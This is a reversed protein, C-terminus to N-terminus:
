FRCMKGDGITWTMSARFFQSTEEDRPLQLHSWQRAPDTSQLWLWRACHSVWATFIAFPWTELILLDLSRRHASLAAAMRLMKVAMGCSTVSWRQSRRSSPPAKHGRRTPYAGAHSHPRSSCSHTVRLALPAFSELHGAKEGTQQHAPPTGLRSDQPDLATTWPRALFSSVTCSLMAAITGVVELACQIPTTSCKMFNTRLGSADGFIRLLERITALEPLDPHCFVVVDDAFLSISSAAHHTTLRQLMGSSVVHQLPNNLKDIIIAFLM